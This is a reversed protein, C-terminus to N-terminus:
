KFESTVDIRYPAASQRICVYDFHSSIKWLGFTGEGQAKESRVKNIKCRVLAVFGNKEVKEIRKIGAKGEGRSILISIAHYWKHSELTHCGPLESEKSRQM